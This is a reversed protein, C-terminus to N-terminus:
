LLNYDSIKKRLTNRHIGLMSSARVQNWNCQKLIKLIHEKEVDELLPGPSKGAQSVPPEVEQLVIYDSGIIKDPCLIVAREIANMMERVNGPWHYKEMKLVADDSFGLIRRNLRRSHMKLFYEALLRVDERRERLPPVNLSIVSLRYFLDSRFNGQSIDKQLDRNTAAIVRVDVRVLRTGGVRYFSKEQLFRLMKPQVAPSMDGIEDLFLTGGHAMEVKGRQLRTAGTFAGKEYGFLESEFLTEPIASCNVVVFPYRSRPGHNHLSRAIVEKGTGTEGLILISSDVPGLRKIRDKLSAVTPTEGILNDGNNQQYKQTIKDILRAQIVSHAIFRAVAQLLMLSRLDYHDLGDRDVYIMGINDARGPLPAALISRELKKRKEADRPDEIEGGSSLLATNEYFASRVIKRSVQIESKEPSVTVFPQLEELVPDWLMIFGRDARFLMVIRTMLAELMSPLDGENYTVLDALRSVLAISQDEMPPSTDDRSDLKIRITEDHPPSVFVSSGSYRADQVDFDPDFVFVSSGICIEDNRLLNKEEIQKGNVLIGNKSDLERIIYEKQRRFIEAHERSIESGPICIDCHSDRGIIAKEDLDFRAGGRPGKVALLTVKERQSSKNM